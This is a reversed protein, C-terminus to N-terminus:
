LFVISDHNFTCKKRIGMTEFTSCQKVVMLVDKSLVPSALTSVRLSPLNRSTTGQRRNAYLWFLVAYSRHTCYPNPERGREKMKISQIFISYSFYFLKTSFFLIRWLKRPSDIKRLLKWPFKAQSGLFPRYHLRDYYILEISRPSLNLLFELRL